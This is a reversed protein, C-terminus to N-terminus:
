SSPPARMPLEFWVVKGVATFEWGWAASLENVILLGRGSEVDTSEPVLLPEHGSGDSVEVRLGRPKLAAAVRCPTKAHTVANTVLESVLLTV